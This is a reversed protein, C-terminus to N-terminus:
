CEDEGDDHSGAVREPIPAVATNAETAPTPRTPAPVAVAIVMHLLSLPLTSVTVATSADDTDEVLCVLMSSGSFCGCCSGEKGNGSDEKFCSVYLPTVSSM